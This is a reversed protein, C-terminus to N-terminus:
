LSKVVSNVFLAIAAAVAIFDDNGSGICLLMM